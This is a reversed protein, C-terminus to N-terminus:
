NGKSTVNNTVVEVPLPATERSGRLSRLLTGLLVVVGVASFLAAGLHLTTHDLLVGFGIVPVALLLYLLIFYATVVAPRHEIPTVEALHAIGAGICTGTSVGILVTAVVFLILGNWGIAGAFVVLGV